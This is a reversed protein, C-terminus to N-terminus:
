WALPEPAPMVAIVWCVTSKPAESAAMFSSSIAARWAPVLIRWMGVASPATTTMKLRGSVGLSWSSEALTASMKRPLIVFHFSGAIAAFLAPTVRGSVAMATTWRESPEPVVLAKM